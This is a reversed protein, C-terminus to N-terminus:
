LSVCSRISAIVRALFWPRTTSSHRSVDDHTESGRPTARDRAGRAGGDCSYRCRRGIWAYNDGGSKNKVTNPPIIEITEGKWFARRCKYCSKDGDNDIKLPIFDDDTHYFYRMHAMTTM